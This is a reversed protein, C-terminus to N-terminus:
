KHEDRIVYFGERRTEPTQENLMSTINELEKKLTQTAVQIKSLAQGNAASREPNETVTRKM